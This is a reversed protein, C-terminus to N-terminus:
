PSPTILSPNKWLPAWAKLLEIMFPPWTLILEGAPTTFVQVTRGTALLTAEGERRIEYTFELRAADTQWLRASIELVDALRAPLLYDVQLQVVPAAVGHEFFVPYDLGHRRGWARRAEEFFNAYHGHWVIHLADVENFRVRVVTREELYHRAAAHPTQALTTRRRTPASPKM